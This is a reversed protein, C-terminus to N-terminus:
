FGLSGSALHSSTPKHKRFICNSITATGQVAVASGMTSAFNEEFISSEMSLRSTADMQIAGGRNSICKTFYSNTVILGAASVTIAGGQISDFTCDSFVVESPGEISLLGDTTTCDSFSTNSFSINSQPLLIAGGSYTSFEIDVFRSNSVTGFCDSMMLVGETESTSIELFSTNDIVLNTVNYLYASGGSSHQFICNSITVHSIGQQHFFLSLSLFGDIWVFPANLCRIHSRSVDVYIDQTFSNGNFNSNYIELKELRLLYFANNGQCNQFTIGDITLSQNARPSTVTILREQSDACTITTNKAGSVSRLVLTKTGLDIVGTTKSIEYDGGMLIVLDGDESATTLGFPLDCPDTDSAGCGPNTSGGPAVYLTTAQVFHKSGSSFVFVLLLLYGVLLRAEMTKAM